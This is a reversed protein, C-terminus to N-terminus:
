SSARRRLTCRRRSLPGTWRTASRRTLSASSRRKSSAMSGACAFGPNDAKLIRTFEEKLEKDSLQLQEKPRVYIKAPEWDNAGPVYRENSEEGSTEPAAVAVPEDDFVPLSAAVVVAGVPEEDVVPLPTAVPAGLPEGDVVRLPAAMGVCVAAVLAAASDLCKTQEEAAAAHLAM